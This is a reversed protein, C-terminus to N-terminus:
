TLGKNSRLMVICLKYHKTCIKFLSCWIVKLVMQDLPTIFVFQITVEREYISRNQLGPSGGVRDLARIEMAPLLVHLACIHLDSIPPRRNTKIWTGIGCFTASPTQKIDARKASHAKITNKSLSSPPRLHKATTVLPSILHREDLPDKRVCLATAPLRMTISFDIRECGGAM